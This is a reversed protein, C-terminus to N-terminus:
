DPNRIELPRSYDQNDQLTGVSTRSANQQAFLANPNLRQDVFLPRSRRNESMQSDSGLTGASAPGAGSGFALGSTQLRPPQAGLNPKTSGSRLLGAKSLVSTNRRIGGEHDNGSRRRRWCCFFLFVGVLAAGALAGITIGAVAGNSLGQRHTIPIDQQTSPLGPSTPVTTVYNTVVGGAVTVIQISTVPTPTWTSSSQRSSTASTPAPQTTIQTSQVVNVSTQVVLSTDPDASPSYFSFPPSTEAQQSGGGGITGAPAPGEAIYGYVGSGGCLEDPYGFCPSNCVAAFLQQSPAYDSCWCNKGQVVGFAGQGNCTDKCKGASMFDDYLPTSNAGTNSPSCFTQDVASVCTALFLLAVGSATLLRRLAPMTTSM